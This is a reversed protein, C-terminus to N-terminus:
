TLQEGGRIGTARRAAAWAASSDSHEYDFRIRSDDFAGEEYPDLMRFHPRVLGVGQNGLQAVDNCVESNRNLVLLDDAYSCGFGSKENTFALYFLDNLHCPLM